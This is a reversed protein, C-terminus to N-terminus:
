IDGSPMSARDQARATSPTESELRRALEFAESLIAKRGPLSSHRQLLDIVKDQPDSAATKQADDQGDMPRVKESM